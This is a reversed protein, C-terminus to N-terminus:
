TSHHGADHEHHDPLRRTALVVSCGLLFLTSGILALQRPGDSGTRPLSPPPGPLTTPPVTTAPTTVTATAPPTSEVPTTPPGTAVVTTPAPPTDVDVFRITQEAATRDAHVAVVRASAAITLQQYVVVVHGALPSDAPVTFLVDVAGNPETPVFATSGTLGTAVMDERAAEDTRGLVDETETITPLVMLEGSVVYETGPVLATYSVTDIVAADGDALDALDVLRDGDGADRAQTTISAEPVANTYVVELVQVATDPEYAFSLPGGDVLVTAWPPGGVEVITYPGATADLPPTRGDAGTTLRDISNGPGSVEFVFGSMDRAGRVDDADLAKRIAFAGTAPPNTTSPMTTLPPPPPPPTAQVHVSASQPPGTWTIQGQIGTGAYLSVDATPAQTHFALEWTGTAITVDFHAIGRAGAVDAGLPNTGIAFRGDAAMSGAMDMTPWGAAVAATWRADDDSSDGSRDVTAVADISRAGDIGIDSLMVVPVFGVPKGTTDLARVEVPYTGPMAPPGGDPTAWTIELRVGDVASQAAAVNTMRQAMEYGNRLAAFDGGSGNVVAADRALKLGSVAGSPSVDEVFMKVGFNVAVHRRRTYEGGGFLSPHQWEGSAVDYSGGADIAYPVVRDGGFSSMLAAANAMERADWPAPDAQLAVTGEGGVDEMVCYGVGTSNNASPPVNWLSGHHAGIFAFPGGNGDIGTGPWSRMTPSPAISGGHGNRGTGAAGHSYGTPPPPAADTSPARGDGAIVLLVVIVAAFAVALRDVGRTSRTTQRAQGADGM